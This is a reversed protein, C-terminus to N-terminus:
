CRTRASRSSRRRRGDALLRGCRRRSAAGTQRLNRYWYGADLDATDISSAPRRTSYFPIEGAARRSGASTPSCGSASRRSTRRLAVAYDVPIRRARVGDAACSPSWSTSRTPTAPSSWRRPGNVAAISSRGGLAALRESSRPRRCRSRCWRRGARRAGAIARSRLAVVRARTRSRCRAPSTPPPSRARRTASWRTPSSATRVAVARGAVGDGRVAGAARRRGPGAAGGRRAARRAAVLRRVAALARRASPAARAAFVPSPTAAAGRGHGAWQSGQGPFVFAVAGGSARRRSSARPAARRARARRPRRAARRPRAGVCSRATRRAHARGPRWRTASTPRASRRAAGGRLRACGRPRRRAAGGASAGSVVAPCSPRPGPTTPRGAAPPRSPPAEELVVHANTGSIGFSSVAPAGRGSAPAAVAAAETLLECRARRGTSTRRRSTSTCRRRCCATGCRWAGDQDRRRRRRRGPHPRHEVEALRAVAAPGRATRATPPWCRRRRSRTASRPAPATRRSPTSTPPAVLGADALAQRIVRQQSPGNPATLGNRRATRTSRPAASWPWCRTATAGPTPCGSWCAARRRGRGLRHRRRRRRVGQLPRGAGAGRQRSFEVFLTPRRGDGHRRRGAGALVRRQRLAQCPWTCRWWRRRAPPTSTVAPGELGLTYAVRGSLSAAGRQRHRLLGRREPPPPRRPPRLRPLHRRRVRRHPQRAAVDPRHGRARAGGLRGGAAAAAAPGDGAGRAPSIGFFGADFAPADHLFAARAPTSRARSTRTPTTCGSSTGAATPRSSASRTAATPSWSAVPGRALAVGGPYRCGMGVIAIPERDRQELADVPENATRLESTIRACTRRRLTRISRTMGRM